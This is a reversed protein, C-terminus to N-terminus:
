KRDLRQHTRIGMRSDHRAGEKKTYKELQSIGLVHIIALERGEENLKLLNKLWNIYSTLSEIESLIAENTPIENIKVM